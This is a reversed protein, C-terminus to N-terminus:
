TADVRDLVGALVDPVDTVGGVHLRFSPTTRIAAALATWTEREFLRTQFMTSPAVARLADIRSMTEVDSPQGPRQVVHCVARVPARCREM